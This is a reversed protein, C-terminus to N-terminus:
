MYNVGDYNQSCQTNDCFCFLFGGFRKKIKSKSQQHLKDLRKMYNLLWIDLIFCVM